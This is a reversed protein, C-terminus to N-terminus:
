FLREVDFPKTGVAVEFFGLVQEQNHFLFASTM